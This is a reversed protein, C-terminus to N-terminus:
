ATSRPASRTHRSSRRFRPRIASRASLARGAAGAPGRQLVRGRCLRGRGRKRGQGRVHVHRAPDAGGFSADPPLPSTRRSRLGLEVHEAPATPDMPVIVDNTPVLTGTVEGDGSYDMTEFDTRGEAYTTPNPVGARVDSPGTQQFFAFEFEQVPRGTAPPPSGTSSTTSQRTSARRAPRGPEATRTPSRGAAGGPARSHRRGHGSGSACSSDKVPPVTAATPALVAAAAIAAALLTFRRRM